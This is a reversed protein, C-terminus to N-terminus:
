HKGLLDRFYCRRGLFSTQNRVKLGFHSRRNVAAVKWKVELYCQSDSRAVAVFQALKHYGYQFRGGTLEAWTSLRSSSLADANCLVTYIVFGNEEVTAMSRLWPRSLRSDSQDKGPILHPCAWVITKRGSFPALHNAIAELVSLSERMAEGMRLQITLHQNLLPPIDFLRLAEKREAASSVIVEPHSSTGALDRLAFIRGEAQWSYTYVAVPSNDELHSLFEVASKKIAQTESHLGGPIYGSLDFLVAAVGSEVHSDPKCGIASLTESVKAIGNEVISLQQTACVQERIKPDATVVTARELCTTAEPAAVCEDHLALFLFSLSFVVRSCNGCIKNLM